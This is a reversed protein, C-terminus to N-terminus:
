RPARPRVKSGFRRAKAQDISGNAFKLGDGTLATQGAAPQEKDAPFAEVGQTIPKLILKKAYDYPKAKAVVLKARQAWLRKDTTGQVLVARGPDIKKAEDIIVPDSNDEPRAKYIDLKLLICTIKETADPKKPPITGDKLTLKLETGGVSDSQAQAEVYVTKGKLEAAPIKWPLTKEATDDVKEFVKIHAPHDCSLEGVGDHEGDYGLKVAIRHAKVGPKDKGHYDHKM